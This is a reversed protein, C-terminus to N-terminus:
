VCKSKPWAEESPYKRFIAMALQYMRVAKDLSGSSGKGSKQSWVSRPPTRHPPDFANPTRTCAHTHLNVMLLLNGCNRLVTLFHKEQSLTRRTDIGVAIDPRCMQCSLRALVSGRVSFTQLQLIGCDSRVIEGVRGVTLARAHM